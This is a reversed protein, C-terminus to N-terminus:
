RGCNVEIEDIKTRMVPFANITPANKTIQHNNAADVDGSYKAMASTQDAAPKALQDHQSGNPGQPIVGQAANAM